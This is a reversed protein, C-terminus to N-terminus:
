KKFEWIMKQKLIKVVVFYRSVNDNRVEFLKEIQGEEALSVLDRIIIKKDIAPILRGKVNQYVKYEKLQHLKYAFEYISIETDYFEMGKSINNVIKYKVDYALLNENKAIIGKVRSATAETHTM